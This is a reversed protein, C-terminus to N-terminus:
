APLSLRPDYGKVHRWIAAAHLFFEWERRLIGADYWTAEVRGPETTSIFVNVGLDTDEIAGFHAVHYAAIQAAQGSWPTCAMGPKTKRSKFDLIGRQNGRCIAADTTGAYGETANVLRLEHAQYTVNCELSWRVAADVYPRLDEAPQEGSYLYQEIAAHIRTGLDAADEVQQFAANMVRAHYTDADMIAWTANARAADTIQRFKWTELEPKALVSLITTVSPFLGNERADKITTGREKGNKGMWRHASRGDKHYWHATSTM